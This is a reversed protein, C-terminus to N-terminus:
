RKSLLNRAHDLRQKEDATLSQFGHSNIKDLIRDVEIRLEENSTINVKYVPTPVSKAQNKKRFWRPLEIAPRSAFFSDERQYFFRFYAWGSLMGGLHASHAMRLWSDRAPLELLILGLISIVLWAIALHRARLGTEIGYPAIPYDPDLCAFMVLLASIGAGVGFLMGPNLQFWNVALWVLGGSIVGAVLLTLFRRTGISAEVSRGLVFLNFLTFLLGILDRPDHLVGHTALTWVFGRKIVEPSVTLFEFFRNAFTGGIWQNVVNELVFVGAIICLVWKLASFKPRDYDDRMYSRDSLM